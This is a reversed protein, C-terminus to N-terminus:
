HHPGAGARHQVQHLDLLQILARAQEAQRSDRRLRAHDHLMFAVLAVGTLACAQCQGKIHASDHAFPDATIQRKGARLHVLYGIGGVGEDDGCGLAAHQHADLRGVLFPYGCPIRPVQQARGNWSKM